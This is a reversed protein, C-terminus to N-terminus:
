IFDIDHDRFKLLAYCIADYIFKIRKNDVLFIGDHNISTNLEIKGLRNIIDKEGKGSNNLWFLIGRDFHTDINEHLNITQQKIESKKFSEIVKALETYREKFQAVIQSIPYPDNSYKCSYLVNEITNSIMPSIYHYYGDIGNTYKRFETDISAIDNNRLPDKWGILSLFDAVVAEGIEGVRKSYEGM